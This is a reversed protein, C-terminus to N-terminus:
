KNPCSVADTCVVSTCSQAEAFIPEMNEDVLTAMPLDSGKLVDGTRFFTTYPSFSSLPKTFGVSADALNALTALAVAIVAIRM